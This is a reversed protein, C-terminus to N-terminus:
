EIKRSREIYEVIVSVMEKPFLSLNFYDHTVSRWRDDMDGKYFQLVTVLADSSSRRALLLAGACDSERFLELVIAKKKDLQNEIDIKKDTEFDLYPFNKFLSTHRSTIKRKLLHPSQLQPWRLNRAAQSNRRYWFLPEPLHAGWHGHEAMCLWFDWDEAVHLDEDYACIMSIERRYVWSAILTNEERYLASGLHFGKRWTFNMAGFNVVHASVAAAKPSLELFLLSKELGTLEWMDDDDLMSLYRVSESIFSIGFNRGASLGTRGKPLHVLKFRADMREVTRLLDISGQKSSHDNVIIWEIPGLSQSHVFAVTKLFTDEEPDQTSTILALVPDLNTQKFSYPSLPRTPSTPYDSYFSVRPSVEPNPRQLFLFVFFLLFAVFCLSKLKLWSHRQGM